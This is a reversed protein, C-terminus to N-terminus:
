EAGGCSYVSSAGVLAAAHPVAAAADVDGEEEDSGNVVNAVMAAADGDGGKSEEFGGCCYMKGLKRGVVSSRLPDIDTESQSLQKLSSPQVCWWSTM